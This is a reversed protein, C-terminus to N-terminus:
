FCRVHGTGVFGSVAAAQRVKLGFLPSEENGVTEMTGNGHSQESLPFHFQFLFLGM